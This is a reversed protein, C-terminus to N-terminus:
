LRAALLRVYNIPAHDALKEFFEQPADKGIEHLEGVHCFGLEPPPVTPVTDKDNVIRFMPHGACSTAFETDGVLPSGYTYTARPARASTALTAVAGGLSHGACFLPCDITDLLPTIKLWLPEFAKKFGEHVKGVSWEVPRCDINHDWDLLNATGRFVVAAWSRDNARVVFYREDPEKGIEELGARDLFRKRDDPQRYVLRSLEALWWANAADYGTADPHFPAPIDKFFDTAKGPEFLDEPTTMEAGGM